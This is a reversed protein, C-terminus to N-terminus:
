IKEGKLHYIHVDKKSKCHPCYIYEAECDFIFTKDDLMIPNGCDICKVTDGVNLETFKFSSFLSDFLTNKKPKPKIVRGFFKAEAARMYTDYEEDCQTCLSITPETASTHFHTAKRKGCKDCIKDFM